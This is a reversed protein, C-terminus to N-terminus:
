NRIECVIMKWVHLALASRGYALLLGVNLWRNPAEDISQNRKFLRIPRRTKKHSGAM